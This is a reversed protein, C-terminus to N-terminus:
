LMCQHWPFSIQMGFNQSRKLDEVAVSVALAAPDLIFKGLMVEEEQHMVQPIHGLYNLGKTPLLEQLVIVTLTIVRM